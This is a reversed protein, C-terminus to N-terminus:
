HSVDPSQLGDTTNSPLFVVLVGNDKLPQMADGSSHAAYNDMILHAKHNPIQKEQHICAVYPAILEEYSFERMKGTTQHTTSISAMQFLSCPLAATLKAKIFYKVAHPPPPFSNEESHVLLHPQCKDRTM